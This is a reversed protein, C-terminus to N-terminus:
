SASRQNGATADADGFWAEHDLCLRLGSVRGEQQACLQQLRELHGCCMDIHRRMQVCVLWFRMRNAQQYRLLMAALHEHQLPISSRCAETAFRLSHLERQAALLQM